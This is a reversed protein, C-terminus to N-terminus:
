FIRRLTIRLILCEKGVSGPNPSEKPLLSIHPLLPPYIMDIFARATLLLYPNWFSFSLYFYSTRLATGSEDLFTLLSLDRKSWTHGTM